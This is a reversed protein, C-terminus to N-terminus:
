PSKKCTHSFYDYRVRFGEKISTVVLNVFDRDPHTMLSMQWERWLLPTVISEMLPPLHRPRPARCGHLVLLDATHQYKGTLRSTYSTTTVHSPAISISILAMTQEERLAATHSRNIGEM